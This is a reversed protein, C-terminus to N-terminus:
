AQNGQPVRIESRFHVFHVGLTSVWVVSRTQISYVRYSKSPYLTSEIWTFFTAHTDVKLEEARILKVKPEEAPQLPPYPM